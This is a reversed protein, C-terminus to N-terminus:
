PPTLVHSAESMAVRTLPVSEPMQPSVAGTPVAAKTEKAPPTTQKITSFAPSPVSRLDGSEHREVLRRILKGSEGCSADLTELWSHYQQAAETSPDSTAAEISLALREVMEGATGDVCTIKHCEKMMDNISQTQFVAVMGFTVAVQVAVVKRVFGQTLM